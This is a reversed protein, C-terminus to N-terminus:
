KTSLLYEHYLFISKSTKVNNFLCIDLNVNTEIQGIRSVVANEHHLVLM